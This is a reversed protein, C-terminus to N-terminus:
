LATHALVSDPKPLVMQYKACTGANGVAADFASFSLKKATMSVSDAIAAVILDHTWENTQTNKKKKKLALCICIGPRYCNIM